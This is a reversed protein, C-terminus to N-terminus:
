RPDAPPVFESDFTITSLPPNSQERPRIGSPRLAPLRRADVRVLADSIGIIRKQMEKFFKTLFYNVLLPIGERRDRLPPTMM